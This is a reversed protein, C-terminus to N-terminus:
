VVSPLPSLDEVGSFALRLWPRVLIGFFTMLTLLTKHIYGGGRAYHNLM